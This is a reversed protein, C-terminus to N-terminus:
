ATACIFIVADTKTISLYSAVDFRALVHLLCKQIHVGMKIVSRVKKNNKNIRKNKKNDGVNCVM